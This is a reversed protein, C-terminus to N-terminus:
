RLEIERDERYIDSVASEETNSTTRCITIGLFFAILAVLVTFVRLTTKDVTVTEKEKKVERNYPTYGM